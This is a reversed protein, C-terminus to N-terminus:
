GVDLRAMLEDKAALFDDLSLEGADFREHLEAIDALVATQDTPASSPPRSQKADRRAERRALKAAAKERQAKERQRKQARAQSM